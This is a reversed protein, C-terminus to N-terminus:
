TKRIKNRENMKEQRLSFGEAKYTTFVKGLESNSVAITM